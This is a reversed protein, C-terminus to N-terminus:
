CACACKTIVPYQIKIWRCHSARQWGQCHWRLITKTTSDSPRCMMGPPISCSRGKYCQGEKFWRPWFRKGLDKWTHHVPCHTYNWLYKKVKHKTRRPVQLKLVDNGTRIPKGFYKIFMPRRGRPRGKRLQFDLSGNPMLIDALPRPHSMYEKDFLNNGLLRRLTRYDLDKEKPDFSPDPNEELELVPLVNSPSPRRGGHLSISNDISSDPDFIGSNTLSEWHSRDGYVRTMTVLLCLFYETLRRTIEKLKM